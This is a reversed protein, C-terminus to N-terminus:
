RTARKSAMQVEVTEMPEGRGVDSSKKVSNNTTPIESSQALSEPEDIVKISEGETAATSAGSALMFPERLAEAPTIRDEPHYALM